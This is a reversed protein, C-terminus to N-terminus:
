RRVKKCSAKKGTAKNAIERRWQDLVTAFSELRAKLGEGDLQGLADYRTLYLMGSKEDLAFCQMAYEAAKQFDSMRFYSIALLNLCDARSEDDDEPFEPLSKQGYAIASAYAQMDYVWEGAWYWVNAKLDQVPSDAAYSMPEDLFDEELLRAFFANATAPSPNDDFHSLADEVAGAFAPM